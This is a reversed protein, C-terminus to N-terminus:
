AGSREVAVRTLDNPSYRVAIMQGPQYKHVNAEAIVNGQAQATFATGSAPQVEVILTVAPNNGNVNIGLPLYQLVKATATQGSTLLQQNVTQCLALMQEAQQKNMLSPAMPGGSALGGAVVGIVAVRSTDSPDYKVQVQAGPQFMPLQVISVTKTVEAQFPVGGPPQVQLLLGVQPNNNIRVGTDRTQVITATADVGTQMVQRTMRSNRALRILTPVFVLAVLALIVFTFILVVPILWVPPDQDM